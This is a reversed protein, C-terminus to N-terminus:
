EEFRYVQHDVVTGGMLDLYTQAQAENESEWQAVTGSYGASSHVAAAAGTAPDQHTPDPLAITQEDGNGQLLQSGIVVGLPNGTAAGGQILGRGAADMVDDIKAVPDSAHGFAAVTVSEPIDFRDVPAGTTVIGITSYPSSRDAALNAAMIGGQSFGTYVVPADAPIGAQRMAEYVGRQYQTALEPHDALMLAVNTDLDNTAPYDALTDEWADGMVGKLSNWEQTSPLSVVYHEEGDAGVVKKIDVVTRESKGMADTYGNNVVFHELSTLERTGMADRFALQQELTEQDTAGTLDSIDVEDVAPTESLFDSLLGGLTDGLVLGFGGGGVSGIGGGILAGLPGGILFGLVTGGAGGVGSGLLLGLPAGAADVIRSALERLADMAEDILPGLANILRQLEDFSDFMREMLTEIVDVYAGVHDALDSLKRWKDLPNLSALGIDFLSGIIGALESLAGVVAERVAVVIESALTLSAATAETWESADRATAALQECARTLARISKGEMAAVARTADDIRSEMTTLASSAANWDRAFAAIQDEDGLLGDLWQPLPYVYDLAWGVISAATDGTSRFSTNFSSAGGPCWAAPSLAATM